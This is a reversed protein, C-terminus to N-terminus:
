KFFANNFLREGTDPGKEGSFAKVNGGAFSHQSIRTAFIDLGKLNDLYKDSIVNTAVIARKDGIYKITDVVTKGTNIVADSVIVFDYKSFNNTSSTSFLVCVDNDKDLADAIGLGFPLGARMMILVAVKKSTIQRDIIIQKGLEIGLCYHSYRLEYGSVASSSLCKKIYSDILQNRERLETVM